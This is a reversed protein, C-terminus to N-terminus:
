QITNRKLVSNFYLLFFCVFIVDKLTETVKGTSKKSAAVSVIKKGSSRSGPGRVDTSTLRTNTTRNNRAYFGGAGGRSAAVTNNSGNNNSGRTSPFLSKLANYIGDESDPILNNSIM